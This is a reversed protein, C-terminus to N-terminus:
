KAGLDVEHWNDGRLKDQEQKYQYFSWVAKMAEHRTKRHMTDFRFGDTEFTFLKGNTVIKYGPPPEDPVKEIRDPAKEIRNAIFASCAVLFLLIVFVRVFVEFVFESLGRKKMV